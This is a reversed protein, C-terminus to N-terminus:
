MTMLKTAIIYTTQAMLECTGIVEGAKNTVKIRNKSMDNWDNRITGIKEKGNMVAYIRGDFTIADFGVLSMSKGIEPLHIVNGM